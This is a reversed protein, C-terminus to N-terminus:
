ADNYGVPRGSDIKDHAYCRQRSAAPVGREEEQKLKAEALEKVSAIKFDAPPLASAKAQAKLQDLGSEDGHFGKYAKVLYDNVQQRGAPALAGPGDYAAARAIHYLGVPYTEPNKEGVVTLGMWYSVEGAAPNAQLTKTFNEKAGANDKKVMATWGM